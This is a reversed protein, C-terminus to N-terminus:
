GDRAPETAAAVVPGSHPLQPRARLGAPGRGAGLANDFEDLLIELVRQSARAGDVALGSVVPRGVLVAARGPRAGQPRRNRAPDRRGRARRDRDGVAEAVAPLADASSLVTDLQRGGHNSVIVGAAGHEAALHADEATLIGKVVVPLPSDGAFREIDSWRLDPDVLAGFDAPTM